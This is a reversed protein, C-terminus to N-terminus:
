DWISLFKIKEDDYAAIGLSYWGLEVYRHYSSWEWDGVSEVLGHKVPNFHIYDFHHEFDAEDVILHAWYRRQWVNRERRKDRSPIRSSQGQAEDKFRHTFFSKILGWRKPYDADGEPLTWICHIHDPLLCIADIRFPYRQQAARFADGFLERAIPSGFIPRRNYTVTTFFYTGGPHFIRLYEPM